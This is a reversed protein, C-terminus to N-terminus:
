WHFTAGLAPGALSLDHLAGDSGLNCYLYRYALVVEGWGFTYGVGLVGNGTTSNRTGAGLDLEVPLYWHGGDGLQVHGLVGFIGDLFDVSKSESGSRELPGIPGSLNWTASTSINGYRIGGILDLRFRSSNMLVSRTAAATAVVGEIGSDLSAAVPLSIVGGPGNVERTTSRLDGINVYVFDYFVGWEGKRATGTLMAAFKLNSLYNGVNVIPSDGAPPVDFNLTGNINPVWVYPTIGFEWGDSGANSQAASASSFALAVSTAMSWGLLKM